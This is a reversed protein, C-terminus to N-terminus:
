KKHLQPVGSELAQPGELEETIPSGPTEVLIPAQTWGEPFKEWPVAGELVAGDTFTVYLEM